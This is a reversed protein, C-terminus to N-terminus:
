TGKIYIFYMQGIHKHDPLLTKFILMEVVNKLILAFPQTIGVASRLRFYQSTGLVTDPPKAVGM